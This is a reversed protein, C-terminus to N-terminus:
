FEMRIQNDDNDIFIDREVDVFTKKRKKPVGSEAIPITNIMIRNEDKKQSSYSIRGDKILDSNARVIGLFMFSNAIHYDTIVISSKELFEIIEVLESVTVPKYSFRIQREVVGDDIVALDGDVRLVEM